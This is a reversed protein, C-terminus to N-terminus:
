GYRRGKRLFGEREMRRVIDNAVSVEVDTIISVVTASDTVHHNGLKKAFTSPQLRSM